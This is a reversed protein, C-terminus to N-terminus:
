KFPIKLFRKGVSTDIELSKEENKLKNNSLGRNDSPSFPDLYKYNVVNKTNEDSSNYFNAGCSPRVFLILFLCSIYMFKCMKVKHLLIHFCPIFWKIIEKLDM